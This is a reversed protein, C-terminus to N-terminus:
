QAHLRMARVLYRGDIRIPLPDGALPADSPGPRQAHLHLHPEDSGGSNGIAGLSDGVMVRDGPRATVSGRRLHGLLVHVGGCALLVHNGAMNTRDWEPVRMDPLGDVVGVARGSCPALVAVGFSEYQEPDRPRIGRARFGWGNIAVLDVAHGNGRWPQLRTNASDMSTQHANVLPSAGGNVVLYHGAGLPSALEVVPQGTPPRRTPRLWGLLSASSLALVVWAAAAVGAWRGAPWVTLQDPRWLCRLAGLGIATAAAHPVWWPPFLWIGVHLIVALTLWSAALQFGIGV